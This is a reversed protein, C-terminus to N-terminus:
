FNKKKKQGYTSKIDLWKESAFITSKIDTYGESILTPPNVSNDFFIWYDSYKVFHDFFNKIGKYYRRIIVDRPINHGGEKVRSNVREIALEVTDLWFFVLTVLYDNQKAVKITNLLTKSTLTTEIAFDIHTDILERIRRLMIKGAEIAVNEPQFPSLGRAIEDANVFERCNLMEPLITFSATTKGAGNAGAIIYLSPM